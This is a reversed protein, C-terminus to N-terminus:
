TLKSDFYKKHLLVSLLQEFCAFAMEIIVLSPDLFNFETELAFKKEGSLANLRLVRKSLFDLIKV